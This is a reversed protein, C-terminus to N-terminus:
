TVSKMRLVITGEHTWNDTDLPSRLEQRPKWAIDELIVSFTEGENQFNIVQNLLGSLFLRDARPSRVIPYNARTQVESHIILPIMYVWPRDPQPQARLTLRRVIPGVASDSGHRNLTLRSEFHEGTPYSTTLTGGTGESSTGTTIFDGGETATAVTVGAGLEQHRIDAFLLLKNDTIGFTVNGSDVTGSAVKEATQAFIGVGSVAFVRKDDFTACSLVQGQGTAMLDSAYSPALDSTFESLDLRGLGTSAADYNDWGFWVFRDQAEFCRVVGTPLLPGILLNGGGDIACTRVGKDTGLMVTSAYSTISRIVEGDPLQGAVIPVDLATGDPLVATRYVLSKDGSYGAAYIHGPGEAFGVWTFDTNPHTYLASPAAGSAVINYIANGNAAMLRGKVYGVLTCSLDSFATSTTTGRQTRHVGASGLAAYVYFGDSTLSKVSQPTEADFIDAGTWMPNDIDTTWYVENGDAVYLYDGATVLSLNTEASALRNATDPLLELQWKTFPNVGKSSRYRFPDSDQRDLHTQGAGHHWSETSVRWLAEPNLSAEGTGESTDAQPRLIRLTEWRWEEALYDILFPRGNIAVPLLGPVETSSGAGEYFGEPDLLEIYLDSTELLTM